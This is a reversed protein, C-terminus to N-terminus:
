YLFTTRSPFFPQVPFVEGDGKLSSSSDLSTLRPDLFQVARFEKLSFTSNSKHNYCRVRDLDVQVNATASVSLM